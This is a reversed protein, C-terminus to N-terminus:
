DIDMMQLNLGKNSELKPHSLQHTLLFMHFTTGKGEEPEVDNFSVAM